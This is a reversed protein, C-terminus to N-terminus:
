MKDTVLHYNNLTRSQKQFALNTLLFFADALYWLIM